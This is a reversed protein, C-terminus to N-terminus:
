RIGHRGVIELIKDWSSMDLVEDTNLMIDFRDELMTVLQMHAVSDWEVTERYRITTVDSQPPLEFASRVTEELSDIASQEPM